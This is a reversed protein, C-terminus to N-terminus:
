ILPKLARIKWLVQKSNEVIAEDVTACRAAIAQWLPEHHPGYMSVIVPGGDELNETVSKKLIGVPDDFCYLTGNYVVCGFRLDISEISYDCRGFGAEPFRNTASGLAQESLDKDLYLSLQMGTREVLHRYLTGTGCGIDLM